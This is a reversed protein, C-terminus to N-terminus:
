VLLYSKSKEETSIRVKQVLSDHIKQIKRKHKSRIYYNYVVKLNPFDNPLMICQCCTKM